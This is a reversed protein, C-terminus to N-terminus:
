AASEEEPYPRGVQAAWARRGAAYDAQKHEPLAAAKRGYPSTWNKRRAHIISAHHCGWAAATPSLGFGERECLDRWVLWRAETAAGDRSSSRIADPTVGTVSAVKAVAATIRAQSPKPKQPGCNAM